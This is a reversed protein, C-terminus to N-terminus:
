LAFCLNEEDESKEKRRSFDFCSSYSFLGFLFLRKRSKKKKTSFSPIARAQARARPPESMGFPMDNVAAEREIGEWIENHIFIAIKVYNPSDNFKTVHFANM